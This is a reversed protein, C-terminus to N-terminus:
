DKKPPNEQWIVKWRGTFEFDDSEDFDLRFRRGTTRRMALFTYPAIRENDRRAPIQGIGSPNISFQKEM